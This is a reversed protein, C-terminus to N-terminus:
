SLWLVQYNLLNTSKKERIVGEGRVVDGIMARVKDGEKLVAEKDMVVKYTPTYSTGASGRLYKTDADDCRCPAVDAWNEPTLPIIDGNEEKFTGPVWRQLIHPTYNM